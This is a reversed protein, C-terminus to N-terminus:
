EYYNEAEKSLGEEGNTEPVVRGKAAQGAKSYYVHFM